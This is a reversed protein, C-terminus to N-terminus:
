EGRKYSVLETEENDTPRGYDFMKYKVYRGVDPVYWYTVQMLNAYGDSLQYPQETDIRLATFTGAPVTVKEPAIGTVKVSMKVTIDAKRPHPFSFEVGTYSEGVRLPFHYVDSKPVFRRGDQMLLNGDRDFVLVSEKGISRILRVKYSDSQEAVVKYTYISGYKTKYVWTDGVKWNPRNAEQADAVGVVTIALACVAILTKLANM